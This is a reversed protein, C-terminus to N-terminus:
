WSSSYYIKDESLNYNELIYSLREKTYVLDNYYHEDYDISGFFFGKQTPLKEQCYKISDKTLVKGDVKNYKKYHFWLFKKFQYGNRVKGDKLECHDLVDSVLDCLDLLNRRTVRYEECNDNGKQVNDVFWKHIANAKRWYALEYTILCYALMNEKGKKPKLQPGFKGTNIDPLDFTVPENDVSFYERVVPTEFKSNKPRGKVPKRKIKLSMDLGM